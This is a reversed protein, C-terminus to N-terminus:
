ILLYVLAIQNRRLYTSLKDMQAMKNSYDSAIYIYIYIYWMSNKLLMTPLTSKDGENMFFQLIKAFLEQNHHRLEEESMNKFNRRFEEFAKKEFGFDSKSKSLTQKVKHIKFADIM